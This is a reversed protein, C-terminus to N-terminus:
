QTWVGSFLLFLSFFFIFLFTSENNCASQYFQSFNMEFCFFIITAPVLIEKQEKSFNRRFNRRFKVLIGEKRRFNRESPIEKGNGELIKSLPMGSIPGSVCLTLSRIKEYLPRLLDKLIKPQSYCPTFLSSKTQGSSYSDSFNLWVSYRFKRTKCRWILAM